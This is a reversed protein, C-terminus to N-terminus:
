QWFIDHVLFISDDSNLSTSTTILCCEESAFEETHVVAIGICMAPFYLHHIHIIGPLSTNFVNGKCHLAFACVAAHFVFPTGMSYLTNWHCFGVTADM